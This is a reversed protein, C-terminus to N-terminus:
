EDAAVGARHSYVIEDGSREGLRIIFFDAVASRPVQRLGAACVRYAVDHEAPLSSAATSVGEVASRQDRAAYAAAGASRTKVEIASRELRACAVAGKELSYRAGNHLAAARQDVGGAAIDRHGLIEQM